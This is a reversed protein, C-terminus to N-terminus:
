EGELRKNDYIDEILRTIRVIQSQLLKIHETIDASTEEGRKRIHNLDIRMNHMEIKIEEILKHSETISQNINWYLHKFFHQYNGKPGTLYYFNKINKCEEFFRDKVYDDENIFWITELYSPLASLIPQDWALDIGVILLEGIRLQHLLSRVCEGAEKKAEPRNLNGIFTDIDGAMRILRRINIKKQSLIREINDACSLRGLSFDIFDVKERMGVAKFSEYLLDDMNNTIVVKFFDDKVLEALHNEVDFPGYIQGEIFSRLEKISMSKRKFIDDLISYCEYFQNREDMEAFNRTSYAKLEDYFEESRFLAGARSGIIVGIRQSNSKRDELIEALETIDIPSVTEPM